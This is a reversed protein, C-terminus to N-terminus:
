KKDGLLVVLSHGSSSFLPMKAQELKLLLSSHLLQSPRVQLLFIDEGGGIRLGDSLWNEM